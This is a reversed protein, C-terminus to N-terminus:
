NDLRDHEGLEREVDSLIADLERIKAEPDFGLDGSYSVVPLERQKSRFFREEVEGDWRLAQLIRIPRQADLVRQALGALIEKYSRWSGANAAAPMRPIPEAELTLPELPAAVPVETPELEIAAASDRSQAM